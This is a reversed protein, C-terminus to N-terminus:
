GADYRCLRRRVELDNTRPPAILAAQRVPLNGSFVSLRIQWPAVGM